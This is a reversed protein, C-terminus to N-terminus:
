CILLIFWSIHCRLLKIMKQSNHMGDQHMFVINYKLCSVVVRNCSNMYIVEVLWSGFPLSKQNLFFLLLNLFLGMWTSHLVYLFASANTMSPYNAAHETLKWFPNGICCMSTSIPYGCPGVSTLVSSLGALPKM